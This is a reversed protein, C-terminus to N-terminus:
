EAAIDLDDEESSEEMHKISLRGGNGMDMVMPSAAPGFRDKKKSLVREGFTDSKKDRDFGFHLHMDVAHKLTNDGVFEGAKTVQHVWLVVGFTEKAWEILAKGCNVPTAKNTKGTDFRGDDLMQLSDVFVFVKKGKKVKKQLAKAHEIVDAVFIDDGIVFGAELGLRECAMKVQFPSEEVCNYLVIHGQKTLADALTRVLTSKGAGPDGTIFGAISPTFGGGLLTDV